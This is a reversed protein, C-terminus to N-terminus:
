KKATLLNVFMILTQSDVLDMM